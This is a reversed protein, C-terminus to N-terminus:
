ADGACTGLRFGVGRVTAVAYDCGVALFKARINRIHSDITRDTIHHGPGYINNIIQDRTFVQNPRSVLIEFLNFELVTLDVINNNYAAQHMARHIRFAAHVADEQIIDSPEQKTRRLITKVRAALESPSFPKIVYDDGGIELGLIRDVEDDRATLFLVPLNSTKRIRQCVELGDLGPLGIDLVVLDFQKHAIASLAESGDRVPTPQMGAQELAYCVVDRIHPEDDVVLITHGM